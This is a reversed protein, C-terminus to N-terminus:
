PLNSGVAATNPGPVTRDLLNGRDKWASVVSHPVTVALLLALDAAPLDMGYWLAMSAIVALAAVTPAAARRALAAATARLPTPASGRERLLQASQRLAHWGGLYLGFAM